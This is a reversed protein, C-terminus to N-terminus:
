AACPPLTRSLFGSPLDFVMGLSLQSGQMHDCVLCDAQMDSPQEQLFLKMKAPEWSFRSAPSRPLACQFCWSLRMPFVQLLQTTCHPADGRMLVRIHCCRRTMPGCVGPFCSPGTVPATLSWIIHYPGESCSPVAGQFDSRWLSYCKFLYMASALPNFVPAAM